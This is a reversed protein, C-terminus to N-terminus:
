WPFWWWTLPSPPYYFHPLQLYHWVCVFWLNPYYSGIDDDPLCYRWARLESFIPVSYHCLVIIGAFFLHWCNPILNPMLWYHYWWCGGSGTMMMTDDDCCWCSHQLWEERKMEWHISSHFSGFDQSYWCYCVPGLTKRRPVISGEFLLLLLVFLFAFVECCIEGCPLFVVQPISCLSSPWTPMAFSPWTRHHILLVLSHRGGPLPTMPIHWTQPYTQDDIAMINCYLFIAPLFTMLMVCVAPWWHRGRWKGVFSYWQLLHYICYVCCPWFLTRRSVCCFVVSSSFPLPFTPLQYYYYIGMMLLLWRWQYYYYWIILDDCAVLLSNGGYLITCWAHWMWVSMLLQPFNPLPFLYLIYLAYWWLKEGCVYAHRFVVALLLIIFAAENDSSYMYWCACVTLYFTVTLCTSFFLWWWFLNTM